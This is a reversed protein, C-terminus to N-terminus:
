CFISISKFKFVGPENGTDIRIIDIPTQSRLVFTLNAHGEKVKKMESLENSFVQCKSKYLVQLFSDFPAKVVIKLLIKQPSVSLNLPFAFWPDSGTSSVELYDDIWAISEVDASIRKPVHNLTFIEEMNLDESTSKDDSNVTAYLFSMLGRASMLLFEDIDKGRNEDNEIIYQAVESFDSYTFRNLQNGDPLPDFFLRGDDRNLFIHAVEQNFITYDSNIKDILKRSLLNPSVLVESGDKSITFDALLKNMRNKKRISGKDIGTKNIIRRFELAKANLSPNVIKEPLVFDPTLELNLCALFDSFINGNVYQTKEYPRVLFHDKDTYQMCDILMKSYNRLYKLEIPGTVDHNKVLQNYTSSLLEVQRRLYIIIKFNYDNLIGFSFSMNKLISFLLESSILIDRGKGSYSDLMQRIAIENRNSFMGALEAGNGSSTQYPQSFTQPNVYKIGNKLLIKHNITCFAQIASSGTKGHGIHLYITNGM